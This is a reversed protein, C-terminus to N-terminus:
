KQLILKETQTQGNGTFRVFYVGASQETLDIQKVSGNQINNWQSSAVVKGSLDIVEVQVVSVMAGFSVNIKGNSPNPYLSINNVLSLDEVGACADVVVTVMDSASCGNGDTYDYTLDYSGVGTSPAFLDATVGTGSWVGGSPSGTLQVDNGYTCVLNTSAAATVVPLQNVTVDVTASGTCGNNDTAVVTYTEDASPAVNVTSGSLNGPTWMYTFSGTGGIANASIPTLDGICLSANGGSTVSVATPEAVVVDVTTTCNNADTVTCTWTGPALGSVSTSGDGTPTGPTWDYVYGGAGGTADNVTATGDTSGNCSVDSSTMASLALDSITYAQITASSTGCPGSAIVEINGGNTGLTVDVSITGQGSNVVVDGPFTWTYSTAGSVASISYTENGNACVTTNGSIAGPAQPLNNDVGFGAAWLMANGMLLAGQSSADWFDSRVDSSPPYINLDARRANSPGVNLRYAAMWTGDSWNAVTSSGSVFNNSPSIYSSSGGNVNSIGTIIPHCPELVTGLNLTAGSSQSSPPISVQYTSTNFNGGVLVSAVSFVCNVVGGGGDIYAALNDGLMTPDMPSNDTFVMVADYMQLTALSPTGTSYVNYIDVVNFLNTSQLKTQVDVLWTNDSVAGCVLIKPKGVYSLANAMLLGGQSSSSWFDSRADSSPPYLNIDVRRANSPGVNEKYAVLWSGNNWQAVTVAGPALTTSTSTYSSSGGNLNTLGQVTPHSPDLITGLTLTTGQTQGAPVVVQYTSTNFAGQIPVSANAFVCNVVGGGGDIYAALNNGLLTPDQAGADTFTLVADYAQLNALTPTGSTTNFIDVTSFQGTALLKSQVDNNWSATSPAGCVLVSIQSFGSKGIFFAVLLLTLQMYKTFTNYM